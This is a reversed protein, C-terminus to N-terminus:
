RSSPNTLCGRLRICGSVLFSIFLHYMTAIASAASGMTSQDCTQDKM